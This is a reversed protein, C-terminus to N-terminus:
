LIEDPQVQAEKLSSLLTITAQDELVAGVAVEVVPSFTIPSALSPNLSGNSCLRHAVAGPNIDPAFRSSWSTAADSSASLADASKAQSMVLAKWSVNLNNIGSEM